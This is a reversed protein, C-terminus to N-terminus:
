NRRYANSRNKQVFSWMEDASVEETQVQAVQHNHVIQAKVSAARVISVVTNYALGSIRSIGRLSSGESHAQLVQRIQEPSVHRYYYLTDFSESFTQLCKPCFYRQHGNPMSGHKHTKYHGCLKCEM